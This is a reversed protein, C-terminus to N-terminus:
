PADGHKRWYRALGYWCQKLGVYRAYRDAEPEELHRALSATVEQVFRNAREADDGSNELSKRVNDSWAQLREALEGLHEDVGDASGFHTLFLRTPHRARIQELSKEWSELDIDPPPTVPSVYGRNAIRIGGTDGVFAIGNAADFYSVHHWAHGPTYVVELTRGGVRIRESGSLAQVNGAPVPLIEGWLLNMKAGYLRTASEILRAPDILHPAGREHVWVRIRPNERVLTGTAGAHDLHIHTLVLHDVDAISLGRQGLKARLMDLASAPGPDVLATGGEGELLCSAIMQLQGLYELDIQTTKPAVNELPSLTRKPEVASM